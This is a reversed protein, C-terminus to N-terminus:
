NNWEDATEFKPEREIEYGRCMLEMEKNRKEQQTWATHWSHVRGLGLWRACKYVKWFSDVEFTKFTPNPKYSYEKM